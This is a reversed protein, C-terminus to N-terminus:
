CGKRVKKEEVDAGVIEVTAVEIGGARGAGCGKPLESDM